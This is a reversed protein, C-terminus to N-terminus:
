SFQCIFDRSEYRKANQWTVQQIYVAKFIGPHIEDRLPVHVTFSDLSFFYNRLHDGDSYFVPYYQLNAQEMAEHSPQFNDSVFM